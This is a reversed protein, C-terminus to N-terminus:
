GARSACAGQQINMQQWDPQAMNQLILEYVVHIKLFFSFFFLFYTISCLVHTKIEELVETEFIEWDLFYQALYQWLHVYTEPVTATMRTLTSHFGFKRSLDSFLVWIDFKMFIRGSPAWINWTSPLVSPPVSIVINITAKRLKAFAGVITLRMIDFIIRYTM